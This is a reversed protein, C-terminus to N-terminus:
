SSLDLSNLRNANQNSIERLLFDSTAFMFATQTLNQTYINELGYVNTLVSQQLTAKEM